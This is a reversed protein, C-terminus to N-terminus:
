GGSVPPAVVTVEIPGLVGDLSNSCDTFAFCSVTAGNLDHDLSEPKSACAGAFVGLMVLVSPGTRM